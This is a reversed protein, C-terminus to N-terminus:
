VCRSTGTEPTTELLSHICAPRLITHGTTCRPLSRVDAPAFLNGRIFDLSATGPRSPQPNWGPLDGLLDTIPHRFDDVALYLLESPSEQSLVNVAIRYDVGAADVAHIQYHPSDTAGERRRGVASATLVGYSSLPM